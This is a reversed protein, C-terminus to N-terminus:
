PHASYGLWGCASGRSRARLPAPQAPSRPLVHEAGRKTKAAAVHGHFHHRVFPSALSRVSELLVKETELYGQKIRSPHENIFSKMLQKTRALNAKLARQHRLISKRLKDATPMIDEGFELAELVSKEDRLGWGAALTRAFDECQNSVDGHWASSVWQNLLQVGMSPDSIPISCQAPDNENQHKLSLTIETKKLRSPPAPLASSSDHLVIREELFWNPIVVPPLDQARNRRQTRRLASSYRRTM